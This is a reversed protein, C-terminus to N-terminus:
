GNLVEYIAKGLEMQQALSLNELIKESLGIQELNRLLHDHLFQLVELRAQYETQLLYIQLDTDLRTTYLDDSSDINEVADLLQKSADLLAQGKDTIWYRTDEFKRVSNMGIVM